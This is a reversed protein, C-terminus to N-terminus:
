VNQLGPAGKWAKLHSSNFWKKTKKKKKRIELAYVTRSIKNVIYVPGMWIPSFLHKKESFTRYLVQDGVNWEEIVEKRVFYKDMKIERTGLATAVQLQIKKINEMLQALWLETIVKPQWESQIDLNVWWQETLRMKRGTMAMYPTLGHSATTGRLAMLILSLKEDWNNGYSSVVKRLATKM